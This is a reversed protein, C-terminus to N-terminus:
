FTSVQIIDCLYFHNSQFTIHCKCILLWDKFLQYKYLIVCTFLHNSQFSTTVFIGYKRIKSCNSSILPTILLLLDFSICHLSWFIVSSLLFLSISFVLCFVLSSPYKVLWCGTKLFNISTYYWVPLLPKVSFHYSM